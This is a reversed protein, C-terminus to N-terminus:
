LALNSFSNLFNHFHFLPPILYSVIAETAQEQQPSLPHLFSSDTDSNSDLNSIQLSTPMTSVSLIDQPTRPTSSQDAVEQLLFM